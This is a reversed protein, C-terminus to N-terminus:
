RVRFPHMETNAARGDLLKADISWYYLREKADSVDQRAVASDPVIASTDSTTTSFVIRGGEDLVVVHYAADRGAVRWTLRVSDPSLLANSRPAVVPFPADLEAIGKAARTSDPPVDTLSPLTRQWSLTILLLAAAAGLVAGVRASIRYRRPVLRQLATLEERCEECDALHHTVQSRAPRQSTGDIYRAMEIASVHGSEDLFSPMDHPTM